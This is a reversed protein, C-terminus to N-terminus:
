FDPDLRDVVTPHKEPGQGISNQNCKDQPDTLTLEVHPLCNKASDQWLLMKMQGGWLYDISCAYWQFFPQGLVIDWNPFPADTVVGRLQQMPSHIGKLSWKMGELDVALGTAKVAENSILNLEPGTDVMARISKGKVTIEAVGTVMTFFKLGLEEENNNLSIVYSGPVIANLNRNLWSELQPWDEGSVQLDDAKTTLAAIFSTSSGSSRRQTDRNYSIIGERSLGLIEPCKAPVSSNPHTQGCCWCYRAMGPTFLPCQSVFPAVTSLVVPPTAATNSLFQALNLALERFSNTIQEINSQTAEPTRSCKTFKAKDSQFSGTLEDELPIHM